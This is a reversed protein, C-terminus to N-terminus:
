LWDVLLIIHEGKVLERMWVKVIVSHHKRHHILWLSLTQISQQSPNLDGLKKVLAAETFGSMRCGFFWHSFKCKGGFSSIINLALRFYNKAWLFTFTNSSYTHNINIKEHKAMSAVSARSEFNPRRKRWFAWRKSISSRRGSLEYTTQPRFKATQVWLTVTPGSKPSSLTTCHRLEQRNRTRRTTTRTTTTTTTAWCMIENETRTRRAIAAGRGTAVLLERANLFSATPARAFLHM